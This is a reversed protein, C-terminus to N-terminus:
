LSQSFFFANTRTRLSFAFTLAPGSSPKLRFGMDLLNDAEDFILVRLDQVMQGLASSDNTLHDLVRGAPISFRPM